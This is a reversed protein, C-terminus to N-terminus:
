CETKNEKQWKKHQEPFDWFDFVIIYINRFMKFFYHGLTLTM